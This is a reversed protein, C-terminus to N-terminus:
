RDEPDGVGTAALRVSPFEDSLCRVVIIVAEVIQRGRATQCLDGCNVRKDGTAFVRVLDDQGLM